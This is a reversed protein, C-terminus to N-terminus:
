RAAAPEEAIGEITVVRRLIVGEPWPGFEYAICPRVTAGVAEGQKELCYFREGYRYAIHASWEPHPRTRHVRLHNGEVTIRDPEAASGYRAAVRGREVQGGVLRALALPAALFLSTGEPAVVRAEVSLQPRLGTVAVNYVM